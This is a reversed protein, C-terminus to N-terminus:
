YRHVGVCAVCSCLLDFCSEDSSWSIPGSIFLLGLAALLWSSSWVDTWGGEDLKYSVESEPHDPSDVLKTVCEEAWGLYTSLTLVTKIQGQVGSSCQLNHYADIVQRQSPVDSYSLLAISYTWWHTQSGQWGRIDDNSRPWSHSSSSSHNWLM